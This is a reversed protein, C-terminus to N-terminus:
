EAVDIVGRKILQINIASIEIMIEKIRSGRSAASKFAKLNDGSIYTTKTKGGISQSLYNFPKEEKTQTRATEIVSGNVWGEINLFEQKLDNLKKILNETSIEKMVCVRKINSIGISM